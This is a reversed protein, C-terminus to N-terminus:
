KFASLPAFGSSDVLALDTTFSGRWGSFVTTGASDVLTADIAYTMSAALASIPPGRSSAPCLEDRDSVRERDRRM